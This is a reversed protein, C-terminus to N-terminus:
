WTSLAARKWTNSGTSVYVYNTDACVIGAGYGWTTATSNTITRPALQLVSALTVVGPSASPVMTMLFAMDPYPFPFTWVYNTGIISPTNTMYAWVPPTLNHSLQLRPSATLGNTPASVVCNTGTGDLVISVGTVHAPSPQQAILIDVGFWTLKCADTNTSTATWLKWTGSLNVAHRNIQVDGGASWWPTSAFLNDVYDKPTVDDPDIPPGVRLSQGYLGNTKGFLDPRTLTYIVLNTVAGPMPIQNMTQDLVFGSYFAVRVPGNTVLSADGIGWEAGNFSFLLQPTGITVNYTVGAFNTFWGVINTAGAAMGAGTPASAPRRTSGLVANTQADALGAQLATFTNSVRNFNENIALYANSAVISTVPPVNTWWLTAPWNGPLFINTFTAASSTLALLALIATLKTKM